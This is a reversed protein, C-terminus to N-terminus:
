INYSYIPIAINTFKKTKLKLYNKYTKKAIELVNIKKNKDHAGIKNLEEQGIVPVNLSFALSNAVAIGVRLGTYSGPGLNVAIALIQSLDIKNEKLLDNITPLLEQSQTLNSEWIKEVEIVNPWFIAISNKNSSTDIALIM